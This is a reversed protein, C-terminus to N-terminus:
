GRCRYSPSAKFDLNVPKLWERKGKCIWLKKGRVKKGKEGRVREVQKEKSELVNLKKLAMGEQGSETEKGKKRGEKRGEKRGCHICLFLLLVRVLLLLWRIREKVTSQVAVDMRQM